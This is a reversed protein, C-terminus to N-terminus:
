KPTKLLEVPVAVFERLTNFVFTKFSPVCSVAGCIKMNCKKAIINARLHHYYDTAIVVNDSFSLRTIIEASNKINELTNKSFSEKVIRNNDIGKNILYHYMCEAESIYEDNGKGGSVICYVKPHKRLFDYAVDLRRALSKSPMNGNVKCGLVVLTCNDTYPKKFAFILIATFLFVIYLCLLVVVILIFNGM